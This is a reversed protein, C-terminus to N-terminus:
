EPNKDSLEMLWWINNGFLKVLNEMLGKGNIPLKPLNMMDMKELLIWLNSINGMSTDM